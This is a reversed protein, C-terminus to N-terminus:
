EAALGAHPPDGEDARICEDADLPAWIYVEKDEHGEVKGDLRVRYPALLQAPWDPERHYHAVVTGRVWRCCARHVRANTCRTGEFHPPYAYHPIRYSHPPRLTPVWRSDGVCCHVAAGVDFRLAARICDDTDAPAWITRATLEDGDM